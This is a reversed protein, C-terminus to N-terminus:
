RDRRWKNEDFPHVIPPPAGADSRAITSQIEAIIEADTRPRETSVPAGRVLRCVHRRVSFRDNASSAQCTQRSTSCFAHPVHVQRGLADLGTAAHCWAEPQETCASRFRDGSISRLRDRHYLYRCEERSYCWTEYHLTYDRRFLEITSCFWPERPARRQATVPLAVSALFFTCVAIRFRM